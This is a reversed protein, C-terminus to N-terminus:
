SRRRRRWALWALGLLPWSGAGSTCGCSAGDRGPDTGADAGSTGADAGSTGADAGPTGADLDSRASVVLELQRTAQAVGDSAVLEVPVVGVEGPTWSFVGTGPDITSGAPRGRVDYTVPGFDDDAAVVFTLLEGVVGSVSANPTPARFTPPTDLPRVTVTATAVSAASSSDRAEFDFTAVGSFSAAPTFTALSGALTVVGESSAPARTVQFQLPDGDVDTASLTFTVAQAHGTSASVASALPADNVPTVTLSVTAPPSYLVGDKARWTFSGGQGTVVAGVFDQPPTYTAVNGALTLTGFSPMTFLEYTLADGDVDTAPLTLAVPQDELSSRSLDSAVPADNLNAVQVTVEAESSDLTGDNVRYGFGFTGTFDLAPMVVLRQQADVSITAIGADPARSVRVWLADGDVDSAVSAITVPTDEDTSGSIGLAVPADNVPQVTVSVETESSSAQGDTARARFTALGHFNPAPTFRGLGGDFAVTGAQAAPTSLLEWTFSDDDADAGTLTFDREEDEVIALPQTAPTTPARNLYQWAASGHQTSVAVEVAVVERGAPTPSCTLTAQSRTLVPCSVGGISVTATTGFNLGTLTLTEGGARAGLQPALSSVVPPDYALSSSTSQGGVTFSVTRAVGEGAPLTCTVATHDQQTLPCAQGGITVSGGTAGLSSGTFTIPVGGATPFPGTAGTLVPAAYSFTSSGLQGAVRVVLPQGVGIGSPATCTLREHTATLLPCDFGNLTVSRDALTAPGLNTGLITAAGGATSVSSAVSITPPDYSFFTAGGAQGQRTVMTMVNQGAGEPITCVITSQTQATVPCDAGGVTVVAGSLGFNSGTITLDGGGQTPSRAPSLSAISPPDYAFGFNTSQGGVTIVGGAGGSSSPITCQVEAVSALTVVCPVGALTVTASPGFNQGTLVLTGGGATSANAPSFSQVVPPLYSFGLFTNSPQGAVTVVIPVNTGVGPPLLCQLQSHQQSTLPCNVGGVTVSGQTTGFNLGTLTLTAGGATPGATPNASTIVPGLYSLSLAPDTAVQGGVTVVIPLNTGVGPPVRCTLQTPQLQTLSCAVGGVTVQTESAAFNTGTIVLDNGGQTPASLPTASSLTPAAYSFLLSGSTVFEQGGISLRIPLGAGAGPPITCYVMTQSQLTIPCNLYGISVSAGSSGFNSGQLILTSGGATSATLPAASIIVPPDYSFFVTEPNSQVGSQVVVFNDTSKGAPLTCVIQTATLSTITCANGGVFVSVPAVFNFGSLTLPIGGATPGHNPDVSTLSPGPAAFSWMPVVLVLLLLGRM